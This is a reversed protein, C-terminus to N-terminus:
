FYKRQIYKIESVTHPKQNQVHKSSSQLWVSAINLQGEIKNSFDLPNNAFSTM